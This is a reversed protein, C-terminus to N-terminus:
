RTPPRPAWGDRLLERLSILGHEAERRRAQFEAATLPVSSPLPGQARTLRDLPARGVTNSGRAPPDESVTARGNAAPQEAM